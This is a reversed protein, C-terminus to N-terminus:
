PTCANVLSNEPQVILHALHDVPDFVVFNLENSPSQSFYIPSIYSIYIHTYTYSIYYSYIYLYLIYIYIYLQFCIHQFCYSPIVLFFSYSPKCAVIQLAIQLLQKKIYLLYQKLQLCTVIVSNM